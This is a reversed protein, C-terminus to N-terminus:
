NELTFEIHHALRNEGQLVYGKLQWASYKYKQGCRNCTVAITDIPGTVMLPIRNNCSCTLALPM